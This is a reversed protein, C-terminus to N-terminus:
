ECLVKCLFVATLRFGGDLCCTDSNRDLQHLSASCVECGCRVDLIQPGLWSAQRTHPVWGDLVCESASAEVQWWLQVAIDVKGSRTATPAVMVGFM